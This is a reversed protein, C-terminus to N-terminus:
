KVDGAARSFQDPRIHRDVGLEEMGEEQEVSVKARRNVRAAQEIVEEISALKGEEALPQEHHNHRMYAEYLNLPLKFAIMENVGIMGIYDGTKISAYEFGPAESAKIPSYGLQIRRAIPDQKNSTSLWICHFGKIKPLDPLISQFLQNRFEEIRAEDSLERTERDDESRDRRSESAERKLRADDRSIRKAM